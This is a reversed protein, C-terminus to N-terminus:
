MRGFKLLLFVIRCPALCSGTIIWFVNQPYERNFYPDSRKNMLPATIDPNGLGNAGHVEAVVHFVLIRSCVHLHYDQFALRIWYAATGSYQDGRGRYRWDAQDRSIVNVPDIVDYSAGNDARPAKGRLDGRLPKNHLSSRSPASCYVNSRLKARDRVVVVKM